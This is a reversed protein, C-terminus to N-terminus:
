QIIKLGLSNFIAKWLLKRFDEPKLMAYMIGVKQTHTDIDFDTALPYIGGLEATHIVLSRIEYVHKALEELSNLHIRKGNKEKIYYKRILTTTEETNLNRKLFGVFRETWGMKDKKLNALWDIISTLAILLENNSSFEKYHDDSKQIAEYAIRKPYYFCLIKYVKLYIEDSCQRLLSLTEDETLHFIQDEQKKTLIGEGFGLGLLKHLLKNTIIIDNNSFTNM